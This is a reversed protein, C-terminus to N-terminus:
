GPEPGLGLASAALVAQARTSVGLKRLVAAVHHDVTRTSLVLVEAIDANRLGQALLGVVELERATLQAPNERTASRPGRPIGGEGLERLRRGVAASARVAGMRQLDSVARRLDEPVPSDALALALAYPGAPRLGAPRSAGTDYGVRDAWRLLADVVTDAGRDLALPLADDVASVTAARRGTLWGVEARAIAVPAIRPLEGTPEALRWAEALVGDVGPDGRRARALGLVVLAHIRPTTSTRPVRLVAEADDVAHSWRGEALALRSRHALLYLRDLERGLESALELGADLNLRALDLQGHEVGMDGLLMRGRIAPALCGARDAREVAQQLPGPGQEGFACVGLTVQADLAVEDAGAADAVEVAQRGWVLAEDARCDAACVHALNAYARALELGPIGALLDVAQVAAASCQETRGPCWLFTSLHRLADGEGRADGLGRYLPVVEELAAIGADYQDTVYCSEALRSLLRARERPPLRAGRALALRYLAAAERHAGVAAADAAAQPAHALVQAAEDAADAHYALRGHDPVGDPPASLAHLARRHLGRARAPSTTAAVALRALEHRFAVAGPSPTLVGAEVCTDVDDDSEEVLQELLWLECGRPSVAVAELVARAGPSLRSTRALVADRVTDPIDSRVAGAALVEHVFFPNGGTKRHLEEPDLDDAAAMEAVGALTLPEVRLRHVIGSTALEGLVTRLPHARELEDDRYTLVVLAPVSAIGRALLRVVDLTAEDAWHLDELVLVTGPRRVLAHVLADVVEHPPGGATARLVADDDLQRAVDLLPGLPRPTFLPDCAGWLVSGQAYAARVLSTKGAGAEGSVAVVRGAGSGGTVTASLAVLTELEGTREVLGVTATGVSRM